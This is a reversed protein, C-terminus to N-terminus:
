QQFMDQNYRLGRCYRKSIWLATDMHLHKKVPLTTRIWKSYKYNIKKSQTM